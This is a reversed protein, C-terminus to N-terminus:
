TGFQGRTPIRLPADPANVTPSGAITFEFLLDSDSDTINTGACFCRYRAKSADVETLTVSFTTGSGEHKGEGTVTYGTLDPNEYGAVFQVGFLLDHGVLAAGESM